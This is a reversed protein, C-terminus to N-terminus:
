VLWNILSVLIVGGFAMTGLKGGMGLFLNKSLIYIVGSLASAALVFGISPAVAMSSMGIFAGCYIAPPMKKLYASKRNIEPLCSAVTGVIGASLVSGLGVYSNLAYCMVAGVPIWVAVAIKEYTYEKHHWDIYRGGCLITVMILAILGVAALNDAEVNEKLTIFLLVLQILVLFAVMFVRIAKGAKKM